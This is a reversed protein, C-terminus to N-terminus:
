IMSSLLFSNSAQKKKNLVLSLSLFVWFSNSNRILHTNKEEKKACQTDSITISHVLDIPENTKWEAQISQRKLAKPINKILVSNRFSILKEKACFELQCFFFFWVCFESEISLQTAFERYDCVSRARLCSFQDRWM